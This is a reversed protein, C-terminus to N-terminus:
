LKMVGFEIESDTSYIVKKIGVFLMAARCMQCPKALRLKGDRNIRVVYITAGETSSAAQNLIVSIEAHATPVIAHQRAEPAQFRAAFSCYDKHNVALNKIGGNKVLVAGMRFQKYNSLLATEAALRIAQRQKRSLDTSAITYHKM